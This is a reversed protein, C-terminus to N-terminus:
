STRINTTDTYQPPGYLNTSSQVLETNGTLQGFTDAAIDSGRVFLNMTLRKAGDAPTSPKYVGRVDNTTLGIPVSASNVVPNGNADLTVTMDAPAFTGEVTPTTIIKFNVVSADAGNDSNIVFSTGAVIAGLSLNGATNPTAITALITSGAQVNVGPGPFNATSVTVTGGALTAQGVTSPHAGALYANNIIRWNFSGNDTDNSSTITFSGATPTVTINGYAASSSSRTIQILSTATVLSNTVTASAVGGSTLLSVAGAYPSPDVIEYNIATSTEAVSSSRIVFSLGPNFDAATRAAYLQGQTGAATKTTLFILSNSKLNAVATSNPTIGAGGTSSTTVTMVGADMAVSTTGSTTRLAANDAYGDWKPQIYNQDVAVYPLGFKDSTGATITGNAAGSCYINRIVKFAKDSTVTTNASTSGTIREVLPAGRYDWGYVTYSLASTNTLNSISVCRGTDLQVCSSIGAYTVSSTTNGDNALTINGAGAPTQSTAINNLVTPLPVIDYAYYPSVWSGDGSTADIVKGTRGFDSIHTAAPVQYDITM